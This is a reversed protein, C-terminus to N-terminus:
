SVDYKPPRLVEMKPPRRTTQKIRRCKEREVRMGGRTNEIMGNVVIDLKV